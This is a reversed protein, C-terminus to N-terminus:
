ERQPLSECWQLLASLMTPKDQVFQERKVGRRPEFRIDYGRNDLYVVYSEPTGPLNLAAHRTSGIRRPAEMLSENPLQGGYVEELARFRRRFRLYGHCGEDAHGACCTQTEYGKDNLMRVHPQLEHDIAVLHDPRKGCECEGLPKFCKPCVFLMCKMTQEPTLERIGLAAIEAAPAEPQVCPCGSARLIADIRAVTTREMKLAIAEDRMAGFAEIDKTVASLPTRRSIYVFANKERAAPEGEIKVTVGAKAYTGYQVGNAKDLTQVEGRTLGHWLVGEVFSGEMRMITPRGKADCALTYGYLKAKTAYVHHGGELKKAIRDHSIDFGYAFYPTEAHVRTDAAHERASFAPGSPRIFNHVDFEPLSNCWDLLTRLLAKRQKEFEDLTLSYSLDAQLAPDSSRVARFGEPVDIKYGFEGPTKIALYIRHSGCFTAESAEMVQYRKSRLIRGHQQLGRPFRRAYYGTHGCTCDAIQHGEGCVFDSYERVAPLDIKAAGYAASEEQARLRDLSDARMDSMQALTAEDLQMVRGAEVVRDIYDYKETYRRLPTRESIYVMAELTAPVVDGERGVTVTEKRYCGSAVGEYRDLSAVHSSDLAWLAGQVHSGERKTITLYGATDFALEYGNLTAKGLLVAGPCRTEVQHIDLNSGYAFNIISPATEPHRASVNNRKENYKM